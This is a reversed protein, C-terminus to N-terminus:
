VWRSCTATGATTLLRKSWEIKTGRLKGDFVRRGLDAFVDAAIQEREAEWEKRSGKLKRPERSRSPIPPPSDNMSLDNLDHITCALPRVPTRLLVCDDGDQDTPDGESASDDDDDDDEIFDRLSGYSEDYHKAIDYVREEADDGGESDDEENSSSSLNGTQREKDSSENESESDPDRIIRKKGKAPTRLRRSCDDDSDDPLFLPEAKIIPIDPKPLSPFQGPSSHPSTRLSSPGSLSANPPIDTRCEQGNHFPKCDTSQNM